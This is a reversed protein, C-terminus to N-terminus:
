LKNAYCVGYCGGNPHETMGIECGKVTDLDFAKMRAVFQDYTRVEEWLGSAIMERQGPQYVSAVKLEVGLWRGARVVWLDPMLPNRKANSLHGYWGVPREGTEGFRRANDATMLAYGARELAGVCLRQLEREAMNDAPTPLSLDMPPIAPHDSPKAGTRLYDRYQEPTWHETMRHGAMQLKQM